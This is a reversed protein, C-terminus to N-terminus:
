GHATQPQNEKLGPNEVTSKRCISLQRRNKRQLNTIIWIGFRSIWPNVHYEILRICFLIESLKSHVAIENKSNKADDNKQPEWSISLVCKRWLLSISKWYFGATSAEPRLTESLRAYRGDSWSQRNSWVSIQNKMIDHNCLSPNGNGLPIKLIRLKTPFKIRHPNSENEIWITLKRERMLKQQVYKKLNKPRSSCYSSLHMFIKQM